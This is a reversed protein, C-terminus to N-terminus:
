PVTGESPGARAAALRPFAEVAALPVFPMVWVMYSTFFVSNFFTVTAMVLLSSTYPGLRGRWVAAYILLVLGLM